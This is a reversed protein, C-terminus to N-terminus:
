GMMGTGYGFNSYYDEYLDDDKIVGKSKKADEAKEKDAPIAALVPSKYEGKKIEEIKAKMKEIATSIPYKTSRKLTTTTVERKKYSSASYNVSSSRNNYLPHKNGYLSTDKSDTSKTGTGLERRIRETIDYTSIDILGTGLTRKNKIFAEHILKLRAISDIQLITSYQTIQQGAKVETSCVEYHDTNLMYVNEGKYLWVFYEDNSVLQTHSEVLPRYGLFLGKIKDSKDNKLCVTVIVHKIDKLEKETFRIV